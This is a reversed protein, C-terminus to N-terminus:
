VNYKIKRKVEALDKSIKNQTEQSMTWRDERSLNSFNYKKIIGEVESKIKNEYNKGEKQNAFYVTDKQLITYDNNNKVEYTMKNGDREISITNGNEDIYESTYKNKYDEDKVFSTREFNSSETGQLIREEASISQSSNTNRIISQGSRGGM